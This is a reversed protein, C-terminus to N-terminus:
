PRDAADPDPAHIRLRADTISWALGLPAVVADLLEDRSVNKVDVRVIEDMAIGRSALAATDITLTLGLRSAIADLAQDFPAALRLSFMDQTTVTTGARRPQPRPRAAPPHRAVDLRAPRDAIAVVTPGEPRWAVRQDVNALVLDFREAVSLPPLSAAPLHDHPITELGAITLGTATALDTVLDRPTAAAPWDWAARVIAPRRRDPPLAALEATRATEAATARGAVSRPAIRITSALVEVDAAAAAAAVRELVDGLREGRCELTVPITPDLRRDLIVPTGAMRSMSGAWDRLPLGTWAARVPSDLDVARTVAGPGSGLAGIAAAWLCAGAVNRCIAVITPM